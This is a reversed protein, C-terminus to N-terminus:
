GVPEIMVISDLSTMDAEHFLRRAEPVTDVWATGNWRADPVWVAKTAMTDAVVWDADFKPVDQVTFVGEQSKTASNWPLIAGDADYYPSVAYYYNFYWLGAPQDFRYEYDLLLLVGESAQLNTLATSNVKGRWARAGNLADALSGYAAEVVAMESGAYSIGSGTVVKMITAGDTRGTPGDVVKGDLDYKVKVPRSTMKGGRLRATEARRMTRFYCHIYAVNRASDLVAKARTVRAQWPGSPGSALEAGYFGDRTTRAEAIPCRYVYVAALQDPGYREEEIKYLLSFAM